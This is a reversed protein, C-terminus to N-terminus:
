KVKEGDLLTSCGLGGHTSKCLVSFECRPPLWTLRMQCKAFLRIKEEVNHCQRCLRVRSDHEVHTRGEPIVWHSVMAQVEFRSSRLVESLTLLKYEVVRRALSVAPKSGLQSGSHAVGPASGTEASKLGRAERMQIKTGM